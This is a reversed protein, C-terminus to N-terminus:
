WQQCNAEKFGLNQRDKEEGFLRSFHPLLKRSNIEELRKFDAQNVNSQKNLDPLRSLCAESTQERTENLM